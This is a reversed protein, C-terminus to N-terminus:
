KKIWAARLVNSFFSNSVAIETKMLMKELAYYQSCRCTISAIRAPYQSLTFLSIRFSISM